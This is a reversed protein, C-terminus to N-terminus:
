AAAGAGLEHAVLGLLAACTSGLDRARRNFASQSLLRPFYSRWYAHAHRLRGRESNGLWHGLVMLTLVESDAVTPKRGRRVPRAPALHTQYLEDVLTYVATVFTEVEVLM